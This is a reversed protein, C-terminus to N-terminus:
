REEPVTAPRRTTAGADALARRLATMADAAALSSNYFGIDAIGLGALTTLHETLAGPAPRHEAFLSLIIRWDPEHSHDRLLRTVRDRVSAPSRSYALGTLRAGARALAAADLGYVEGPDYIVSVPCPVADMVLKVLHATVGQRFRLFAQLGPLEAIRRALEGPAPRVASGTGTRLTDQVKQALGGRLLDVDIGADRGGRLCASCFCLSLALVDLPDFTVGIREHIGHVSNFFVDWHPSELEVEDVGFQGAIDAALAALYQQVAPNSPCLSEPNPEGWLNQTSFEPYQAFRPSYHLAILWASIALGYRRAAHVVEAYRRETVQPHVAPKIGCDRYRDADPSFYAYSADAIFTRRVPNRPMVCHVRHYVPCVSVAGVGADSLETFKAAPDGDLLEWPYAYVRYRTATM